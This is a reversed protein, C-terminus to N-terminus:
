LAIERGFDNNRSLEINSDRLPSIKLFETLTNEHKGTNEEYSLIIVEVKKSLFNDPIDITIKKKNVEIINKFANV